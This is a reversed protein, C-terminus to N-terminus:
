SRRGRTSDAKDIDKSVPTCQKPSCPEVFGRGRLHELSLRYEARKIGTPAVTKGDSNAALPVLSTLVSGRSLGLLYEFIAVEPEEVAGGLNTYNRSPRWGPPPTQRELAHAIDSAEEQSDTEHLLDAKINHEECDWDLLAKTEGLCHAEWREIPDKSVGYYVEKLDRNVLQYVYWKQKAM